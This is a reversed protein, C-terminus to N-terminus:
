VVLVTTRLCVLHAAAVAPHQGRPPTRKLECLPESPNAAMGAHVCVALLQLSCKAITTRLRQSSAGFHICHDGHDHGADAFFSQGKTSDAYASAEATRAPLESAHRLVIELHGVDVAIQVNHDRDSLAVLGRLMGLGFGPLALLYAAVMICGAIRRSKASPQRRKM